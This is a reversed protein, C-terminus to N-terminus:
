VQRALLEAGSSGVIRVEILSGPQERSACHIRMYREGYGIFGHGLPSAEELLLEEQYGILSRAYQAALEEGMKILQSSRRAAIQPTVQGTYAAAPTGPRPSFRFVHLRSFGVRRVLDMTEEFEANSEGPFGVIVDTSFSPLDFQEKLTETLALFDEASYKRGMRQLVSNSGSQLPIHFDRCVNVNDQIARILESTFDTPEVSSIRIRAGEIRPSLANIVSALNGAGERERGYSTLNIGTLVIEKFGSEVLERAKAIITEQPMSRLRGRARPVICYTCYRQCGEQIKLTARHRSTTISVPLDCFDEPEEVLVRKGAGTLASQVLSVLEAKHSNGVILDVEKLQDLEEWAVQPYCGAAVVLADPNRRRAQRLLQRSKRSGLHTVTCTNVIYVDAQDKFDVIQFGAREFLIQM